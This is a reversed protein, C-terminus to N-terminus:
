VCVNYLIKKVNDMGKPFNVSVVFIIIRFLTAFM